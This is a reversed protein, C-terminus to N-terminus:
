KCVKPLVQAGLLLGRKWAWCSFPQSHLCSCVGKGAEVGRAGGALRWVWWVQALGAAHGGRRGSGNNQWFCGWELLWLSSQQGLPDPWPGFYVRAKRGAQQAQEPGLAFLGPPPWAAGCWGEQTPIEGPVAWLNLPWFALTGPGQGAFALVAGGNCSFFAWQLNMWGRGPYENLQETLM